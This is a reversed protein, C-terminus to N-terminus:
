MGSAAFWMASGSGLSERWNGNRFPEETYGISWGRFFDQEAEILAKARQSEIGYGNLLEKQTSTYDPPPAANGEQVGTATAPDDFTLNDEEDWEWDLRAEEGDTNSSARIYDRMDIGENGTREQVIHVVLPSGFKKVEKPDLDSPMPEFKRGRYYKCRYVFREPFLGKVLFRARETPNPNRSSPTILRGAEVWIGGRRELARLMDACLQDDAATPAFMFRQFREEDTARDFESILRASTGIDTDSAKNMEIPYPGGTELLRPPPALLDLTAFVMATRVFRVNPEGRTTVRHVSEASMVPQIAQPDVDNDSDKGKGKAKSKLKSLWGTRSEGNAAEASGDADADLPRNSYRLVAEAPFMAMKNTIGQGAYIASLVREILPRSRIGTMERAQAQFLSVKRYRSVNGSRATMEAGNRPQQHALYVFVSGQASSSTSTPSFGPSGLYALPIQVGLRKRLKSVSQSVKNKSTASTQGRSHTAPCGVQRFPVPHPANLDYSAFLTCQLLFSPLPASLPPPAAIRKTSSIYPLDLAVKTWSYASTPDSAERATVGRPHDGQVPETANADNITLAATGSEIPAASTSSSSAQGPQSTSAFATQYSPPGGGLTSKDM